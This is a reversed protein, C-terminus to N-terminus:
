SSRCAFVQLSDDGESPRDRGRQASKEAFFVDKGGDPVEGDVMERVAAPYMQNGTGGARLNGGGPLRVVDGSELEGFSVFLAKECHQTGASAVEGSRICRRCPQHNAEREGSLDDPAQREEEDARKRPRVLRGHCLIQRHL